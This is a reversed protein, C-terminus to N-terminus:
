KANTQQLEVDAQFGNSDRKEGSTEATTKKKANNLGKHIKKAPKAQKQNNKKHRQPGVSGKPEGSTQM